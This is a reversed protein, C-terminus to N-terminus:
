AWLEELEVAVSQIAQRALTELSYDVRMGNRQAVVGGSPPEAVRADPGLVDLARLVLSERTQPYGTAARVERLALVVRRVLEEYVARQARLYTARVARRARAQGAALVAHADAEGRTRAAALITDAQDRAERLTREAAEDAEALTRAADREARRILEARVPELAASVTIM